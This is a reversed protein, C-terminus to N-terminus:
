YYFQQIGLLLNQLHKKMFYYNTLITNIRLLPIFEISEYNLVNHMNSPSLHLLNISAIKVGELTINSVLFM